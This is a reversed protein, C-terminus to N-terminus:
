GSRFHCLFRSEMFCPAFKVLAGATVNLRFRSIQIKSIHPALDYIHNKLGAKLKRGAGRHSFKRRNIEEKKLSKFFYEVVANDYPWGPASFSKCFVIEDLM